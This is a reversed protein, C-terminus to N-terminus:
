LEQRLAAAIREAPFGPPLFGIYKGDRDLLFIFATHDITYGAAGELPVKEFFVKYAVAVRRVQAETGTLAVFGPHFNRVYERLIGPTDRKPDLTIFVPQVAAGEKGLSKIAQGIALLDTPCVDPCSTFGFYLLVVKGHFDALRTSKGYADLLTFDGGVGQGLMLENMLRAAGARRAEPPEAGPQTAALVVAVLLAGPLTRHAV